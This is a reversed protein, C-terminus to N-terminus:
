WNIKEVATVTFENSLFNQNLDVPPLPSGMGAGARQKMYRRELENLNRWWSPRFHINEIHDLCMTVLRLPLTKDNYEFASKAYEVVRSSTSHSWTLLLISSGDNLPILNITSRDGHEKRDTLSFIKRGDWDPTPSFCGSVTIFPQGSLRFLLSRVDGFIKSLLSRECAQKEIALDRCALSVGQERAFFDLYASKQESHNKGRFIVSYQDDSFGGSQKCWYEFCITRYHFAMAQSPDPIIERSEIPSFLTTDHHICFGPFTSAKKVAQRVPEVSGDLQLCENGSTFLSLVHGSESIRQLSGSRQLTHSSIVKGSCDRPADPAHCKAPPISRRLLAFARKAEYRPLESLYGHCKRFPRGSACWCPHNRLPDSRLLPYKPM